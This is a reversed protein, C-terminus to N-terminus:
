RVLSLWALAALAALQHLPEPLVAAEVVVLIQPEMPAMAQRRAVDLAAVVQVARVVPIALLVAAVLM